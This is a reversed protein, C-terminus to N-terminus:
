YDLSNFIFLYIKLSHSIKVIVLFFIIIYYEIISLIKSDRYIYLIIVVLLRNPFFTWRYINNYPKYSYLYVGILNIFHIEYGLETIGILQM